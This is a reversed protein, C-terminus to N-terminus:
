CCNGPHEQPGRVENQAIQVNEHNFSKMIFYRVDKQLDNACCRAPLATKSSQGGRMLDLGQAGAMMQKLYAHNHNYVRHDQRNSASFSGRARGRGRGSPSYPHNGIGPRSQFGGKNDDFSRVESFSDRAYSRPPGQSTSPRAPLGGQPKRPPTIDRPYGAQARSTGNQHGKSKDEEPQYTRFATAEKAARHQPTLITPPERAVSIPPQADRGRQQMPEKHPRQAGEQVRLKGLEAKFLRESGKDAERVRRDERDDGQYTRLSRQSSVEEDGRAPARGYSGVRVLKESPRRDIDEDDSHHRRKLTANEAQYTPSNAYQVRGSKDEGYKAAHTYAPKSGVKGTPSSDTRELRGVLEREERAPIPPPPMEIASSSRLNRPLTSVRPAGTTPEERPQVSVGRTKYAREEQAAQSERALLAKRLDLELMEKHRRLTDRRYARDHYGTYELWEELDAWYADSLHIVSARPQEEVYKRVFTEKPEPPARILPPENNDDDDIEIVRRTSYSRRVAMGKDSEKSNRPLYTDRPRLSGDASPRRSDGDYAPQPEKLRGYHESGHHSVTSDSAKRTARYSWEREYERPDPKSISRPSTYSTGFSDRRADNRSEVRPFVERPQVYPVREHRESNGVASPTSTAGKRVETETPPSRFSVDLDDVIEGQESPGPSHHNLGNLSRTLERREGDMRKKPSTERNEVARSERHHHQRQYNSHHFLEVAKSRNPGNEATTGICSNM